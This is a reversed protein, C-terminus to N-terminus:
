SPGSIKASLWLDFSFRLTPLLKQEAKLIFRHLDANIQPRKKDKAFASRGKRMRLTNALRQDSSEFGVRERICDDAMIPDVRKCRITGKNTTPRNAEAIALAWDVRGRRAVLVTGLLEDVVSFGADSGKSLGSGDDEGLALRLSGFWGKNSTCGTL